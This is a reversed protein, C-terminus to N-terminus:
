WCSTPVQVSVMEQWYSITMEAGPALWGVRRQWHGRQPPQPEVRPPYSGCSNWPFPWKLWVINFNKFFFVVKLTTYKWANWCATALVFLRYKSSLQSELMMWILVSSLVFNMSPKIAIMDWYIRTGFTWGLNAKFSFNPKIHTTRLPPLIYKLNVFNSVVWKWFVQINFLNDKKSRYRIMKEKDEAESKM